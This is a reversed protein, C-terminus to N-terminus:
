WFRDQFTLDTTQFHTIILPWLGLCQSERYATTNTVFANVCWLSSHHCQYLASTEPSVPSDNQIPPQSLLSLLHKGRDCVWQITVLQTGCNKFQLFRALKCLHLISPPLFFTTSAPTRHTATMISNTTLQQWYQILPLNSSNNFQHTAPVISNTLQQWYQILPLNSDNNSYHYTATM